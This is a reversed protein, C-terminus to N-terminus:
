TLSEKRKIGPSYDIIPNYKWTKIKRRAMSTHPIERIEFSIDM